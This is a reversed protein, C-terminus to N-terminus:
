ETYSADSDSDTEDADQLDVSPEKVYTDIEYVDEVVAEEVKNKKKKLQQAKRKALEQFSNDLSVLAELPFLTHALNSLSSVGGPNPDHPKIRQLYLVADSLDIEDSNRHQAYATLDLMVQGLFEHSKATILQMLESSMIGGRKKKRPPSMRNHLHPINQALAVFGRMLTKPVMASTTRVRPRVTMLPKAVHAQKEPQTVETDSLINPQSAFHEDEEIDDNDITFHGLILGSPSLIDDPQQPEVENFDDNIFLDESPEKDFTQTQIPTVFETQPIEWRPESEVRPTEHVDRDSVEPYPLIPELPSVVTDLRSSTDDRVRFQLLDPINEKESFDNDSYHENGFAVPDALKLTLLTAHELSYEPLGSLTNEIVFKSTNILAHLGEHRTLEGMSVTDYLLHFANNARNRSELIRELYSKFAPKEPEKKHEILQQERVIVPSRIVEPSKMVDDAPLPLSYDLEIPLDVPSLSLDKDLVEYEPNVVKEPSKRLQDRLLARSFARLFGKSIQGAYASEYLAGTSSRRRRRLTLHDSLRRRTPTHARSLPRSPARSQPRSSRASNQGSARRSSRELRREHLTSDQRISMSQIVDALDQPPLRIGSIRSRASSAPDVSPPLSRVPTTPETPQSLM